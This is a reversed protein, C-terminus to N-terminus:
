KGKLKKLQSIYRTILSNLSIETFDYDKIKLDNIMDKAINIIAKQKKKDVKIDENLHQKFKM